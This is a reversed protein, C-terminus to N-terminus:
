GSGEEGPRCVIVVNLWNRQEGDYERIVYRSRIPDLNLVCQPQGTETAIRRAKRIAESRTM